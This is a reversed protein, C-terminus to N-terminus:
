SRGDYSSRPSLSFCHYVLIPWLEVHLGGKTQGMRGIFWIEERLLVITDCIHFSMDHVPKLVRQCGVRCPRLPHCAQASPPPLPPCVSLLPQCLSSPFLFSSHVADAMCDCSLYHMQLALINQSRM